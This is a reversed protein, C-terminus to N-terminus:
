DCSRRHCKGRFTKVMTVYGEKRTSRLYLALSICGSVLLIIGYSTNCWFLSGLLRRNVVSPLWSQTPASAFQEPLMAIM